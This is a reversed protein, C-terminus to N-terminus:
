QCMGMVCVKAGSCSGDNMGDPTPTCTGHMGSVNCARCVGVCTNNCCFGDICYSSLCDSGGSCPQGLNAKCAGMGDCAYAGSCAPSTDIMGSPINTCVGFNGAVNCAMCTSGCPNNCCVGDVCNGNTCEGNSGCLQGDPKKPMCNPAACYFTNNACDANGSCTTKCASNTCIYNGCGQTGNDMCTHAATCTDAKNLTTMNACSAPVCVSGTAYYRCAGAGDCQGDTACTAQGQDVCQNKPDMGAKINGCTGDAGSVKNAALCSQCASNCAGNCCVGEVCFGSTCDGAGNCKKGQGCKVTCGGGGGCDVDTENGDKTNNNCQQMGGCSDPWSGCTASLQACNKPCCACTLPMGCPSPNCTQPPTCNADSVCGVCQGTANCVLGGGCPTNSAKFPHTLNGNVCIDDTCPNGDGQPDTDDVNSKTGGAGDCVIVHCDGSTQLPASVPTNVPTFYSGCAHNACQPHKCEDTLGPCDADVNCPYCTGADCVKGGNMSCGTGPSKDPTSPVGMTCTPTKCDNNDAPLDTDDVTDTDMGAICLHVHCDNAVQSFGPTPVGDARPILDCKSTGANCSDDTCPNQDDCLPKGPGCIVKCVGFLDCQGPQGAFLCAMGEPVPMHSPNGGADCTDVTCDNGDSAVDAVDIVPEETGGMCLIKHCDGPTQMPAAGDPWPVYVCRGAACTEGTCANMDDCQAADTCALGADSPSERYDKDIGLIATCSVGALFLLLAATRIIPHRSM